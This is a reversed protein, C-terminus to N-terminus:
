VADTIVPIVIPGDGIQNRFPQVPGPQPGDVVHDVDGVVHHQFEVLRQVGKVQVRDGVVVHHDPARSLALLEGGQVPHVPFQGGVVQQDRVRRLRNPDAANHASRVALDRCGGGVHQQFRRREM